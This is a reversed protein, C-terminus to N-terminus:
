TLEKKKELRLFVIFITIFDVPLYFSSDKFVTVSVFLIVTVSNINGFVSICHPEEFSSINLEISSDIM